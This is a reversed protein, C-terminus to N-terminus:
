GSPAPSTKDCTELAPHPPVDRSCTRMAGAVRRPTASALGCGSNSLGNPVVHIQYSANNRQNEQHQDAQGDGAPGPGTPQRRVLHGAGSQHEGDAPEARQPAQDQQPGDFLRLLVATRRLSPARGAMPRSTAKPEPHPWATRSAASTRTSSFKSDAGGTIPLTGTVTFSTSSSPDGTAPASTFSSPFM